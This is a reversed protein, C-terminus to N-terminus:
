LLASHLGAYDFLGDTMSGQAGSGRRWWGRGKPLEHRHSGPIEAGGATESVQVEALEPDYQFFLPKLLPVTVTRHDCVTYTAPAM